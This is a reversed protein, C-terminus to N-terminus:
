YNANHEGLKPSRPLPESPHSFTIPSGFFHQGNDNHVMGRAAFLPHKLAEAPTLIASVCADKDAFWSDWEDRTKSAFAATLAWRAPLLILKAKLPDDLLQSIKQMNANAPKKGGGSKRKSAKKPKTTSSLIKNIPKRLAAPVSDWVGNLVRIFFQPELAGVAIHKGDRCRYISYNPLAGSLMDAGRKPSKATKNIAALAVTNMALAGDTMSIDVFTGQGSQKAGIVAALVGIAGNMAGGALDAIQVNSLAPGSGARGIQDLVGATALYNMDHGARETYPGTQGYGTIAAYVLKPNIAKLTDYDCNLKKMVGPRFSEIIVDATEAMKKFRQQDAETRLDLTISQKGRNVLEFLEPSLSRTYDGGKPEEIKIVTAGLQALQQTCYPGPLLRTLDLVTIGHLLTNNQTNM